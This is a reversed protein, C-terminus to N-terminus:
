TPAANPRQEKTIGKKPPRDFRVVTANDCVFLLSHGSPSFEVARISTPGIPHFLKAPTVGTVRPASSSRRRRTANKKNEGGRDTCPLASSANKRKRGVIAVPDINYVYVYGNTTGAAFQTRDANIGLKLFWINSSPVVFTALVTVCSECRHVAPRWLKVENQTSKTLLLDGIWRVCDVYDSHVHNTSFAPWQEEAPRFPTLQDWEKDSKATARLISESDLSWIKITNDMGSSAFCNGYLHVDVSLVDERHGKEGSFIAICVNTLTNWMRISEDKSTSFLIHPCVSHRKMANIDNAHGYMAQTMRKDACGIIKIVGSVGGAAVRPSGTKEDPSIWEVAYFREDSRDDVYSQVYEIVSDVRPGKERQINKYVSVRNKGATAFYADYPEGFDCFRVCYIPMKHDEEVVAVCSWGNCVKSGKRKMVFSSNM